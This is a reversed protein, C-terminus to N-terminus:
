QLWGSAYGHAQLLAREAPTANVIRWGGQLVVTLQYRAREADLLWLVGQEDAELEVRFREGSAAEVTM